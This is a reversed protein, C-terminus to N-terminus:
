SDRWQEFYALRISETASCFAVALCPKENMKEVGLMYDQDSLKKREILMRMIDCAAELRTEPERITLSTRSAILKDVVEIMDSRSRKQGSRSSARSISDEPVDLVTNNPGPTVPDLRDSSNQGQTGETRASLRVPEEDDDPAAQSGFLVPLNNLTNNSLDDSASAFSGSQTYLQTQPVEVRPLLQARALRGEASSKDFIQSCEQYYECPETM